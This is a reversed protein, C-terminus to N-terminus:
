EIYDDYIMISVNCDTNDKPFSIVYSDVNSLVGLKQRLQKNRALEFADDLSDAEEIIDPQGGYISSAASFKVKM